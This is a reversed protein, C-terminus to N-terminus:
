DNIFLLGSVIGAVLSVLALLYCFAVQGASFSERVDTHMPAANPDHHAHADAM